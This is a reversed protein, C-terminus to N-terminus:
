TLKDLVRADGVTCLGKTNVIMSMLVAAAMHQTAPM